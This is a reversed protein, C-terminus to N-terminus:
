VLVLNDKMVHSSTICKMNSIETQNSSLSLSLSLILTLLLSDKLDGKLVWDWIWNSVNKCPQCVMLEHKM